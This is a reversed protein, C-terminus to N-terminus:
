GTPSSRRPPRCGDGGPRAHAESRPTGSCGHRKRPRSTPAATPLDHGFDALLQSMDRGSRHTRRM